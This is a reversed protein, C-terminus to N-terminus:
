THIDLDFVLLTYSRMVIQLTNAYSQSFSYRSEFLIDFHQQIYSFNGVSFIGRIRTSFFFVINPIRSPVWTFICRSVLFDAKRKNLLFRGPSQTSLKRGRPTDLHGSKICYLIWSIFRIGDNLPITELTLVAQYEFLM